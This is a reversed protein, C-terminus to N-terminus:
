TPSGLTRIATKHTSYNSEISAMMAEFARTVSVLRTMELVPNVNSGEIHGQIIGTDNFSLVPTAELDSTVSSNEVRSLNAEEPLKFLGIAGIQKGAQTIMGDAAIKPPGANPDLRMPSGGADLIPFGTTTRLSGDPGMELRGDRTYVQGNPTDISMWADGKIAVDLPNGTPTIPGTNRSLFTAGTSAYAINESGTQSLVTEFKVEEARFGATSANAVNHAITAVRKELALLASVSVYNSNEM